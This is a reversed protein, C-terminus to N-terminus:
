TSGGFFKKNFNTCFEPNKCGSCFTNVKGVYDEVGSAVNDLSLTAEYGVIENLILHLFEHNLSSLVDSFDYRPCVKCLIIENTNLDCFFALSSNLVIERSRPCEFDEKRGLRIEVM